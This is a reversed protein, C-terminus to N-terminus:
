ASETNALAQQRTLPHANYAFVSVGCPSKEILKLKILCLYKAVLYESTLGLTIWM